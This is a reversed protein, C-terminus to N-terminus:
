HIALHQYVDHYAQIMQPLQYQEIARQRARAGCARRHATDQLAAVIAMGLSKPSRPPVLTGCGELAERVGGVDTAVVMKGCAMAEIVGFPFGESLSASVVLDAARYAAEPESTARELSITSELGLDRIRTVCFDRYAPDTAEGYIRCRVTPIRRHVYSMADVLNLTDKLRDVRGVSIVTPVPTEAPAAPAFRTTDVGNYIVRVKASPVGM